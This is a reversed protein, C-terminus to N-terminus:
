QAFQAFRIISVHRQCHQCKNCLPKQCDHLLSMIRRSLYRLSRCHKVCNGSSSIRRIQYVEIYFTECAVGLQLYM